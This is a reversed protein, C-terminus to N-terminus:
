RGGAPAIRGEDFARKAALARPMWEKLNQIRHADSPHDSLFEPMRGGEGSARQMREWFRVAAESDYGAFPMLFVGIKDAEAEQHRDFRRQQLIAMIGKGAARERAIRESAHHALAHAIEHSLVTALQDDGQAIRLIGTFVVIKGGPLCFANAENKRVVATAWEFLYGRVRLRIERQLPEIGAARVLRGAIHRVRVSEPDDAPLIHDHYEQLVERYARRGIELEQQPTLALPQERGGPGEGSPGQPGPM